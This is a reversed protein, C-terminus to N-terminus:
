PTKPEPRKIAGMPERVRVREATGQVPYSEAVPGKFWVSALWDVDVDKRADRGFSDIVPADKPVSVVAKDSVMKPDPSSAVILMSLTGDANREISKVRGIIGPDPSTKIDAPESCGVVALTLALVLGLAIPIARNM